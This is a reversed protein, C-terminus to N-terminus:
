GAAPETDASRLRRPWRDPWAASSSLSNLTTGILVAIVAGFLSAAVMLALSFRRAQAYTRDLSRLLRQSQREILGALAAAERRTKVRALLAVVAEDMLVGYTEGAPDRELM